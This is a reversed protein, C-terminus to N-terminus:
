EAQKLVKKLLDSVNLKDAWENMYGIDLEKRQVKIVGIVDMLQRESIEGGKRYWNLKAIITDEATAIYIEQESQVLLKVAQRRSLQQEGFADYSIYVDIKFSSDFHIANFPKKNSIARRVALDDIYFETELSTILPKVNELTLDTLLDIDGTARSFGLLSSAVSGVVVYRVKQEELVAAFEHLVEFENKM